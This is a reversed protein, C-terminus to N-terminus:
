SKINLTVNAPMNGARIQLRGNIRSRWPTNSDVREWCDDEGSRVRFEIPADYTLFTFEQGKKIEVGDITYIGRAPIFFSFIRGNTVSATTPGANVTPTPKTPLYWIQLLAIQIIILGAAMFGIYQKESPWHYGWSFRCVIILLWYIPVSWFLAWPYEVLQPIWRILLGPVFYFYAVSPIGTLLFQIASKLLNDKFTPETPEPPKEKEEDSGEIYENNNM